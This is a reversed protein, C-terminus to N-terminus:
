SVFSCNDHNNPITGSRGKGRIEEAKSRKKKSSTKFKEQWNQSSGLKGRLPEWLLASDCLSGPERVFMIRGLPLLLCSHWEEPDFAQQGLNVFGPRAALLGVTNQTKKIKHNLLSNIFIDLKFASLSQCKCREESIAVGNSHCNGATPWHVSKSTSQHGEVFCLDFLFIQCWTSAVWCSKSRLYQATGM